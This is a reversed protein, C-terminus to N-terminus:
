LFGKVLARGGKFYRKIDELSRIQMIKKLVYSPRLYFKRFAYRHMNELKEVSDYGNPLWVVKVNNYDELNRSIFKGWKGQNIEKALQTGPYPCVIEFQAYDPDLEIANQITKKALEPTEGPLGVLFSGRVQIGAERTWKAIKKMKEFDRNKRNTLTNAALEDIGTEYGYFINWCGAKSMLQLMEKDVTNVAAYCSWILDLDAEILLDLFEKMWKKHYSLTDDWFSVEKIGYKEVCHKMEAVVREPSRKRLKVNAQDCFKCSYPCGRIVVMNTIPLKRYSNPFPIHRERPFLDRAPFPLDDLDNITESPINRVVVNNKKFIIGKISELLTFDQM